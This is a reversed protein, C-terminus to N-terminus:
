HVKSGNPVEEEPTLLVAGGQDVAIFVGNSEVGMIKAPEINVAIPVQKGILDEPALFKGFGAVVQREEDGLNIMVKLLKKSGEVREASIVTGIKLELEAFQEFKVTKSM